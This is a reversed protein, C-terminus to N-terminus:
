GGRRGGDGGIRLVAGVDAGYDAADDAANASEEDEAGDEEEDASIAVPLVIM